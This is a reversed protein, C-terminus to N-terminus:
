RGHSAPPHGARGTRGARAAAPRAAGPAALAGAHEEPPSSAWRAWRRSRRARDASGIEDRDHGTLVVDSAFGSVQGLVTLRLTTARVWTGTSLKFDEALRGDFALGANADAPDIFRVADGTLLFGEEDFADGADEGADEFYRTMVNPGAVRLESRGTADPVLKLTVAPLPVGINGPGSSRAPADADRRPRDRVHGLRAFMLPVRGTEARAMAALEDWIERTVAAAAYFILDLDAFYARRLAADSRMAAVM